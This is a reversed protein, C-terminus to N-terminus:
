EGARGGAAAEPHLAGPPAAALCELLSRAARGYAGGGGLKARVGALRAVTARHHADDGLFREIERAIAEATCNEQICEPVIKGGAVINVLGFTDTVTLRRAVAATLANLRYIVVMPIELLATELTATGSSVIAARCAPLIEELPLRHVGVPLDPFGGLLGSVEEDRLAGALPMVLQLDRFYRRLLRAAGLALPLNRRIESPRSGPLLGLVPRNGEIGLRARIAAPDAPAVASDVLPHGVYEVELGRKRYFEVEFPFVVLMRDVVRAIRSVRGPKWAWVQPSIFYIVPVGARHAKEGLRLNFGPYDVLLVGDVGESLVRMCAAFARRLVPLHRVVEFFGVVSIEGSDFVPDLGAERMAAGGIGTFRIAPDLRRAERM